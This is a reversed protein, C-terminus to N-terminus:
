TTEWISRIPTITIRDIRKGDGTVTIHDLEQSTFFLNTLVLMGGAAFVELVSRDVLITVDLTAATTPIAAEIVSAFEQDFQDCCTHQRDVSLLLDRTSIRVTVQQDCPNSLCIELLDTDAAMGEMRIEHARGGDLPLPRNYDDLGLQWPSLHYAQLEAVPQQVLHWTGDADKKATLERPISMGGRWPATPTVHAYGWHNIWGIIVARGDDMNAWSQMAYFDYGHDFTKLRESQTFVYGDFAGFAYANGGATSVDDKLLSVCMMWRATGTSDESPVLLLDPCEYLHHEGTGELVCSSALEWQKLDTSRYLELHKGASIVMVWSSSEDHRFVKPDRFDSRGMSPIVPNHEYPVLTKGDDHSVALCQQQRQTGHTSTHGTYLVAIGGETDFLGSTNEGDLVASGSFAMGCRDDPYLAIQLEEWSILDTSVAHGWHMPGWQSSFPHYQYYLHYIGNVHICGNPDNMWNKKPTYHIQPRQVEDYIARKM